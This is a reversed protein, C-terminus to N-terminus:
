PASRPKSLLGLVLLGGLALAPMPIQALSPDGTADKKPDYRPDPERKGITNTLAAAFAVPGPYSERRMKVVGDCDQLQISPKGAAYHHQIAWKTRETKPDSPDYIQVRVREKFPTLAPHAELDAKIQATEQPTGIVTLYFRCSDDTLDERGLKIKVDEVTVDRTGQSDTITIRNRKPSREYEEAGFLFKQPGEQVWGTPGYIFKTGSVLHVAEVPQGMRWLVRHPGENWWGDKVQGISLAALLLLANM